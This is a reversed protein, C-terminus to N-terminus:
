DHKKCHQGGMFLQTAKHHFFFFVNKCILCRALVLGRANLSDLIKSLVPSVLLELSQLKGVWESSHPNIHQAPTSTHPEVQQPEGREHSDKSSTSSTRVVTMRLFKGGPHERVFRKCTRSVCPNSPCYSKKYKGEFM